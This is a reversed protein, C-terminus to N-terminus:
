LNRRVIIIFKHGEGGYREIHLLVFAFWRWRRNTNCLKIVAGNVACSIRSKKFLKCLFMPAFLCQLAFLGAGETSVTM